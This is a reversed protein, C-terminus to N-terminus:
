KSFKLKQKHRPPKRKLNYVLLSVGSFTIILGTPLLFTYPAVYSTLVKYLVLQVPPSVKKPKGNEDIVIDPVLNTEIRYRGSSNTIGLAILHGTFIPHVETVIAGKQQDVEVSYISLIFAYPPKPPIETRPVVLIVKFLTFQESDENTVNIMLQKSYPPSGLEPYPGFSWDKPQVFYLGMKENEKFFGSVIWKNTKDDVKESRDIKQQINYNTAMIVGILILFVSISVVVKKM